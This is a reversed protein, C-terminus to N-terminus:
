KTKNWKREKKRKGGLLFEEHDHQVSCCACSLYKLIEQDSIEIYKM